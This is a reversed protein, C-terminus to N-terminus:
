LVCVCVCVCEYDQIKALYAPYEVTNEPSNQEATCSDLLVKLKLGSSWLFSM